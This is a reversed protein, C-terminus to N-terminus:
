KVKGIDEILVYNIAAGSNKKDRRMAPLLEDETCPLETPLGCAKFDAALRDALGKSAIGEAESRRAACIIGVAVAEGHTFTDADNSQRQWWEIAHAWTHGLNLVRRRGGQEFSDECVIGDKISAADSILPAMQELFDNDTICGGSNWGSLLKVAEAYKAADAIIFTKLLEAAGSRFERSPLTELAEPFVCTFEPQRFSGVMNKYGDLNVGTKGGISADVMALLTTPVNAYAIGRKYISAAFGVTDTTVGGGIALAIAGRDAGKDMLFRCIELVTEADKHEESFEMELLPASSLLPDSARLNEAFPKVKLDCVLFVGTYQKLIDLIEDQM